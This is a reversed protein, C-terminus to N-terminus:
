AYSAKILSLRDGKKMIILSACIILCVVTIILGAKFSNPAYKFEIEHQGKDLYLARFIYNARLIKEEKGDVYAKWGPYYVDSLFLFGKGTLNASVNVHQSSYEVVKVTSGISSGPEEGLTLPREELIIYKEPNFEDSGMERLIENKDPIIKATSVVFAKPLVKNNEYIKTEGDFILKHELNNLRYPTLIYKVNLLNLLNLSGQSFNSKGKGSSNGAGEKIIELVDYYRKIWIAINASHISSIGSSSSFLMIYNGQLLERDKGGIGVFENSHIFIRVPTNEKKSELFVATQPKSIIDKVPVTPNYRVGFVLLDVIIILIGFNKFIVPNIKKKWLYLMFLALVFNFVPVFIEPNLISVKDILKSLLDAGLYPQLYDEGVWLIMSGFLFLALGILGLKFVIDIKQEVNQKENKLGCLLYDFGIGALIALAFSALYLFRSVFRFHNFGPIFHLLNYLPIPAYKGM